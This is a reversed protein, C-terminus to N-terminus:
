KNEGENIAAGAAECRHGRAKARKVTMRGCACWPGDGRPRGTSPKGVAQRHAGLMSAIERPTLPSNCHPCNM